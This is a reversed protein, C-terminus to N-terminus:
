AARAHWRRLKQALEELRDVAMELEGLHAVVEDTATPGPAPGLELRVLEVNSRLSTLATCLEHYTQELHAREGAHPEEYATVIRDM